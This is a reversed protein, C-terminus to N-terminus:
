QAAGGTSAMAPIGQRIAAPFEAPTGTFARARATINGAQRLTLFDLGPTLGGLEYAYEDFYGSLLVRYDLPLGDAIQRALDVVITTCNSTLTNYFRPTSRISQAEHVYGLFAAQLQAPTLALRYLQVDEGRANTRVRVIDNEDAAILVAEYQRFFGAIASFTEHSEKRIELSFVLQRGDAFGFSVLTHAIAPGMWYSLLLDGSVLEDLDYERTEWRPTYDTESRWEFNRVNRLIVHNGDIDAELLQAVDDAWVRDHSPRLNAWWGLVLVGALLGLGYVWAARRRRCAGRCFVCLVALGLALWVPMVVWRWGPVAQYWLALCGWVFFGAILCAGLALLLWRLATLWPGPPRGAPDPHLFCRKTM